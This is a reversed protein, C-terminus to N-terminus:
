RCAARCSSSAPWTWGRFRGAPRCNTISTPPSATLATSAPARGTSISTTRTTTSAPTRPPARSLHVGGPVDPRPRGAPAPHGAPQSLHVLRPFGNEVLATPTEGLVPVRLKANQSTNTTICHGPVGDYGCNVPNAASALLPQNLGRAILLRGAESGVYGAELSLGGSWAPRRASIGSISGRCVTIRVPWATRSSRPPLARFTASHSRPFRSTCARCTTAPIRMPSARPSHRRPSCPPAARTEATRRRRTSAASAAACPSRRRAAWRSGPSESARRLPISRLATRTSRQCERPGARGAPPPGFPQGTYPNILRPDYNAAVTNGILTGSAPPIAMQRFLAPWANGITGGADYAPGIYEWRLGLNLTLRSNVKFDDQLFLAAAYSRYDYQVQGQPGVGESAQISQINSRGAPSLNDAASLGLLFDSFTQFFLKGRATGLDDRWNSQILFFAGGRLRTRGHTWSLTDALTDYQNRTAFDNGSNGFVRFSGLPGQITIEPPQDFFRDAPTM